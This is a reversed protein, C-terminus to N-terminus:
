SKQNTLFHVWTTVEGHKIERHTPETGPSTELFRISNHSSPRVNLTGPSTVAQSLVASCEVVVVLSPETGRGLNNLNLERHYSRMSKSM